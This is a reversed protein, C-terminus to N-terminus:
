DPTVAFRRLLARRPLGLEVLGQDFSLTPRTSSMGGLHKTIAKFSESRGELIAPLIAEIKRDELKETL